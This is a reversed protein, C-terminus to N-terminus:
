GAIRRRIRHNQPVMPRTREVPHGKRECAGDVVEENALVSNCQPCWNIPAKKRYVLGKQLFKLFFWQNWRYYSPEHTAIVRDWDYSNGLAKQYTMINKIANETYTKPHINERKAANEAPLGFSDYGMPYLVTHGTLRKFRAITDGISYNRVHGMHLFSASPYPFMELCYFKPKKSSEDSKFAKATEWKKQWKKELAAFDVM